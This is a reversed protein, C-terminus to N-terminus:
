KKPQNLRKKTLRVRLPEMIFAHVLTMGITWIMIFGWHESLTKGAVVVTLMGFIFYIVFGAILQAIKEKM